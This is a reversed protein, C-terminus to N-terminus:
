VGARNNIKKIGRALQKCATSWANIASAVRDRKRCYAAGAHIDGM